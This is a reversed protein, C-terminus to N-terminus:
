IMIFHYKGYSLLIEICETNGKEAAIHMATFSGYLPADLNVPSSDMLLQQLYIVDNTSIATYIDASTRNM